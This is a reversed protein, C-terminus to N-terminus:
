WKQKLRTGPVRRMLSDSGFTTFIGADAAEQNIGWLFAGARRQLNLAVTRAHGECQEKADVVLYFNGTQTILLQRASVGTFTLLPDTFADFLRALDLRWSEIFTFNM